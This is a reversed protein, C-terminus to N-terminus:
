LITNGRKTAVQKLILDDIAEFMEPSFLAIDVQGWEPAPAGASWTLLEMRQVVGLRGFGEFEDPYHGFQGAYTVRFHVPVTAGLLSMSGEVIISGVDTPIDQIGYANRIGELDPEPGPVLDPDIGAKKILQRVPADSLRNVAECILYSPVPM